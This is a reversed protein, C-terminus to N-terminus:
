RGKYLHPTRLNANRRKLDRYKMKPTGRKLLAMAQVPYLTTQLVHVQKGNKDKQLVHIPHKPTKGDASMIIKTVKRSVVFRRQGSIFKRVAAFGLHKQVYKINPKAGKVVPGLERITRERTEFTPMRGIHHLKPKEYEVVTKGPQYGAKHALSTVSQM